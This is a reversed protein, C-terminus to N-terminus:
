ILLTIGAAVRDPRLPPPRTTRAARGRALEPLSSWTSVSVVAVRIRQRATLAGAALIAMCALAMVHVHADQDDHGGEANAAAAITAAIPQPPGSESHMWLHGILACVMLMFIVASRPLRSIM